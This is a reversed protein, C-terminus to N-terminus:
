YLWRVWGYPNGLIELFVEYSGFIELIQVPIESVTAVRQLTDILTPDLRALAFDDNGVLQVVRGLGSINFYRLRPEQKFPVNPWNPNLFEYEIIATIGSTMDAPTFLRQSFMERDWDAETSLRAIKIRRPPDLSIAEGLYFGDLRVIGIQSRLESYISSAIARKQELENVM